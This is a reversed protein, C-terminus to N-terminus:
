YFVMQIIVVIAIVNWQFAGGCNVGNCYKWNDWDHVFEFVPSIFILLSSMKFVTDECICGAGRIAEM